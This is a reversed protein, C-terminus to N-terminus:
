QEIAYDFRFPNLDTLTAPFSFFDLRAIPVWPGTAASKRGDSEQRASDSNLIFDAIALFPSAAM